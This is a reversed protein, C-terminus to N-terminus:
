KWLDLNEKIKETRRTIDFKSIVRNRARQSDKEGIDLEIFEKIQVLDKETDFLIGTNGIIDPIGFVRSGIPVCGCLMAECVSNPLGELRSGQFYFKNNQYHQKMETRTQVGVVQVNPNLDIFNDIQIKTEGVITFQVEPLLSALMNFIRLGKIKIVRQDSFFAATLVGTKENKKDYDWFKTDYGTNIEKIVIRKNNFFSRVGSIINFKEKAYNCGNELSKHVVWIESVLSYNIRAIISRIGRKFFLGHHNQEDVIADYGGVIIVSKKFFLKSFLIPIFAHYDNFWSIVIKSRSVYFISKIKEKIRNIVFSLVTKKPISHIQFVNYDLAELISIDSKVFSRKISYVITVNKKL